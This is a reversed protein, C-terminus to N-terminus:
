KNSIIDFLNMLNFENFKSIFENSEIVKLFINSDIYKFEYLNDNFM